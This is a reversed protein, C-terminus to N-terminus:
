KTRLTPPPEPRAPEGSTLPPVPHAYCKTPNTNDQVVKVGWDQQEMYLQMRRKALWKMRALRPYPLRNWPAGRARAGESRAVVSDWQPWLEDMEKELQSVSLDYDEHSKSEISCSM